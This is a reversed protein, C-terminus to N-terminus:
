PNVTHATTPQARGPLATVPITGARDHRVHLTGDFWEQVTVKTGAICISRTNPRLQYVQGHYRITNDNVVERVTKECLVTRLDMGEPVPRFASAPSRPQVGFRRAYKPIFVRNLYDTAQAPDTIHHHDLEAVLRDQFSGNIREGRGRAQPSSAFILQVALTQMAVEFHTPRDDRQLVHTGGHRTTTFQGARDLYLAVPLGFRRAVHYFVEFCANLTEQAAFLGWLPKGTADDTALILTSVPRTPGFWRHPSGDLFLLEGFRAQRERKRRHNKHSRHRHKPPVDAARLWRRLTERNVAIGYEEDLAEAFHYDNYKLFKTRHLELVQRRLGVPSANAPRRGCNGHIIGKPGLARVRAKLRFVQRQCCGLLKAAENASLDLFTREVVRLRRLEYEKLLVMSENM